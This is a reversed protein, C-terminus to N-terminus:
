RVYRVTVFIIKGLTFQVIDTPFYGIGGLWMEETPKHIFMQYNWTTKLFLRMYFELSM